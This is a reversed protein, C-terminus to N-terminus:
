FVGCWVVVVAGRVKFYCRKDRGDFPDRMPIPKDKFAEVVYDFITGPDNPKAARVKTQMATGKQVAATVLNANNGTLKQGDVVPKM